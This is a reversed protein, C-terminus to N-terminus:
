QHRHAIGWLCFPKATYVYVCHFPSAQVEIISLEQDCQRREKAIEEAM